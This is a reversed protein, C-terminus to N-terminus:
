CPGTKKVPIGLQAAKCANAYTKNNCGCVPKWAGSCVVPRPECAGAQGCAGTATACYESGACEANSTCSPPPCSGAYDVNQKVAAAECSNSFDLGDCSCVPARLEDCAAPVPTCVGERGCMGEGTACYEEAVCEKSSQCPGGPVPEGERELAAPADAEPQSDCGVVAFCFVLSLCSWGGLKARM